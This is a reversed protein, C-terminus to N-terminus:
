QAPGSPAAAWLGLAKLVSRHDPQSLSRADHGLVDVAVRGNGHRRTWVVPVATATDTYTQDTSVEGRATAAVAIDDALDLDAYLEDPVVFHSCSTWELVETRGELLSVEVDEIPGHSSREWSWTGGLLAAWHPHADFCIVAAHIGLLGGGSSVFNDIAEAQDDSLRFAMDERRDAYRDQSMSWYLANVVFLDPPESALLGIAETPDDTITVGLGCESLAVALLDSTAAFDHGVGGGLLM